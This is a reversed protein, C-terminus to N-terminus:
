FQIKLKQVEKSFLKGGYGGKQDCIKLEMNYFLNRNVMRVMKTESLLDGNSLLVNGFHSNKPFGM